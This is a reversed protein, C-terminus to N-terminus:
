FTTTICFTTTINLWYLFAHCSWQLEFRRASYQNYEETSDM